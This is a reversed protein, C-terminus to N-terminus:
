LWQMNINCGNCILTTITSPLLPPLDNLPNVGCNLTLLGSPLASLARSTFNNMACDLHLLKSPFSMVKNNKGFFFTGMNKYCVLIELGNPLLPEYLNLRNDACDLYKLTDPLFPLKRLKNNSCKFVELKSPLIYPISTLDNNSCDIEQVEDGLKEIDNIDTLIFETGDFLKIKISLEKKSQLGGM